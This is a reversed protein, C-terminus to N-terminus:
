GSARHARFSEDSNHSSQGPKEFLRFGAALAWMVIVGLILLRVIAKPEQAIAPEFAIGLGAFVGAGAAATMLYRAIM